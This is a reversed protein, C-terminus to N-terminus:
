GATARREIGPQFMKSYYLAMMISCLVALGFMAYSAVVAYDEARGDMIIVGADSLVEIIIGFGALSVLVVIFALRCRNYRSVIQRTDM